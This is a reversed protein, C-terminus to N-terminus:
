SKKEGEESIDEGIQNFQEFIDPNEEIYECLEEFSYTFDKNSSKLGAFILYVMDELDNMEYVNKGTLKKFLFMTGLSFGMKTKKIIFEKGDIILKINEM